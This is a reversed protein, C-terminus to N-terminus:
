ILTDVEEKLNAAYSMIRAVVVLFSGFLLLTANNYIITGFEPADSPDMGSELTHPSVCDIMQPDGESFSGFLIAEDPLGESIIINEMPLSFLLSEFTISAIADTFYLAILLWGINAMRKNNLPHFVIGQSYSKFLRDLKILIMATIILCVPVSIYWLIKTFWKPSDHISTSMADDFFSSFLLEQIMFSNTRTFLQTDVGYFLFLSINSLLILGCILWLLWRVRKGLNCIRAIDSNSEM